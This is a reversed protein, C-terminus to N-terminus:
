NNKIDISNLNLNKDKKSNKPSLFNNSLNNTFDNYLYSFLNKNNKEALENKNFTKNAEFEFSLNDNLNSIKRPQKCIKFHNCIKNKQKYIKNKNNLTDISENHKTIQSLDIILKKKRLKGKELYFKNLPYKKPHSIRIIPKIYRPSYSNKNTSKIIDESFASKNLRRNTTIPENANIRNTLSYNISDNLKYTLSHDLPLEIRNTLNFNKFKNKTKSNNKYSKLVNIKNDINIYNMSIIKGFIKKMEKFFAKNKLSCYNNNIKNLKINKKFNPSFKSDNNYTINNFTNYINNYYNNIIDKNLIKNQTINKNKFMNEERINILGKESVLKYAMIDSPCIPKPKGEIKCKLKERYYIMAQTKYLIEPSYNQLGPYVYNIFDDLNSNGGYYLYYLYNNSLLNLNNDIIFSINDPFTKHIHSCDECLFIANNISIYKPEKKRCDFCENNMKKNSIEKILEFRKNLYNSKINKKYKKIIM